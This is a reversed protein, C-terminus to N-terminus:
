AGAGWVVVVDEKGRKGEPFCEERERERAGDEERMCLSSAEAREM